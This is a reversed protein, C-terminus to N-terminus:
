QNAAVILDLLQGVARDPSTGLFDAVHRLAIAQHGELKLEPKRPIYGKPTEATALHQMMQNLTDRASQVPNHPAPEVEDKVPEPAPEAVAETAVSALVPGDLTKGNVQVGEGIPGDTQEVTGVVPTASPVETELNEAVAEPEPTNAKPKPKSGGVASRGGSVTNKAM